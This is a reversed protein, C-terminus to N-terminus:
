REGTRTPSLRGETGLSGLHAGCARHAHQNDETGVRHLSEAIAEYVRVM